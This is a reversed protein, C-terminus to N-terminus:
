TCGSEQPHSVNMMYSFWILQGWHSYFGLCTYLNVYAYIHLPLTKKTDKPQVRCLNIYTDRESLIEALNRCPEGTHDELCMSSVAICFTCFEEELYTVRVWLLSCMVDTKFERYQNGTIYLDCYLIKTFVKLAGWPVEGSYKSSSTEITQTQLMRLRVLMRYYINRFPQQLTISYDELLWWFTCSGQYM